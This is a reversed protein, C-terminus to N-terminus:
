QWTVTTEVVKTTGLSSLSVLEGVQEELQDITEPTIESLRDIAHKMSIIAERAAAQREASSSPM